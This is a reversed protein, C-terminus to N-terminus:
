QRRAVIELRAREIRQHTNDIARRADRNNRLHREFIDRLLARTLNLREELTSRRTFDREGDATRIDFLRYDISQARGDRLADALFLIVRCFCM